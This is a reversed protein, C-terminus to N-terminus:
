SRHESQLEAMKEELSNIKDRFAQREEKVPEYEVDSIVGDAHKLAKYDTAALLQKLGNIDSQIEMMKEEM